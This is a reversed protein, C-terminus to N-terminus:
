TEGVKIHNGLILSLDEPKHPLSKVWNATEDYVYGSWRHAERQKRQLNGQTISFSASVVTLGSPSVQVQFEQM